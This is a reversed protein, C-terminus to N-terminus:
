REALNAHHTLPGDAKDQEGGRRAREQQAIVGGIVERNQDQAVLPPTAAVAVFVIAASLAAILGPKM